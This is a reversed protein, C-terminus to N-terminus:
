LNCIQLKNELKTKETEVKIQQIHIQQLKLLNEVIEKKKDKSKTIVARLDECMDKLELQKDFQDEINKHLSSLKSDIEKTKM